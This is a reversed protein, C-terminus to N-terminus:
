QASESQLKISINTRSGISVEQRTYGISTFVLTGNAPASIQYDGDINTQTTTKSGKVAITVNSLATDGTAVRGRVTINQAQLTSIFLSLALILLPTKLTTKLHIKKVSFFSTWLQNFKM